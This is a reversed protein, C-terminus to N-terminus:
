ISLFTGTLEPHGAIYESANMRRKGEPQITKLELLMDASNVYMKRDTLFIEGPSGEAKNGTLNSEFIKFIKRDLVTFAGPYPSLGRIHDHIKGAGQNWNIRCDDRFIKPAPCALSDDQKILDLKAGSEILKVTRLLLEAGIISLRDHLAGANEDPGIRTKEQLIINGTDVEEKLFFTTVGTETEGNMIARNIPAAGRYRPLLSAHLNVSGSRPLKFVVAPLIRFAVIVILEPALENLDSLFEPSKLKDPQLVTLGQALAYKKVESQSVELGRGKPKDPATVVACIHTGSGHLLSLSKVAFEPTGMFLIRM